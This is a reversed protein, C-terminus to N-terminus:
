SFNEKIKFYETIQRQSIYLNPLSNRRTGNLIALWIAWFMELDLNDDLNIVFKTFTTLGIVSQKDSRRALKGASLTVLEWDSTTM